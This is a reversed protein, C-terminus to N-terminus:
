SVCDNAGAKIRIHLAMAHSRWVVSLMRPAPCAQWSSARCFGQGLGTGRTLLTLDQVPIFGDWAHLDSKCAIHGGFSFTARSCTSCGATGRSPRSKWDPSRAGDWALSHTQRAALPRGRSADTGLSSAMPRPVSCRVCILRESSVSELHANAYGCHKVLTYRYLRM